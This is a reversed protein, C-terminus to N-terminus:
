KYSKVYEKWTKYPIKWFNDWIDWKRKPAYDRHRIIELDWLEKMLKNILLRTHTRQVETFDKWNSEIEIWISKHNMTNKIGKYYWTGAHWTVQTHKAFQYITGDQKILYHCSYRGGGTSLLRENWRGVVGTHHLMVYKPKNIYEVYIAKWNKRRKKRSVKKTPKQIIDMIWTKEEVPKKEKKIMLEDTTIFYVSQRIDGNGLLWLFSKYYFWLFNYKSRGYSGYEKLKGKKKDRGINVFHWSSSDARNTQDLVMDKRDATFWKGANRTYGFVVWESLLKTFKRFQMPDLLNNIYYAKIKIDKDLYDNWFETFWMMAFVPPWWKKVDAGKVNKCYTVFRKAERKTLKIGINLEANIVATNLNLNNSCWALWCTPWKQTVLSAKDPDWKNTFIEDKLEKLYKLIM